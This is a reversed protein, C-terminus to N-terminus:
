EFHTWGKAHPEVEKLPNTNYSNVIFDYRNM